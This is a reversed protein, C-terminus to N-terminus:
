PVAPRVPYLEDGIVPVVKRPHTRSDVGTLGCDGQRGWSLVVFEQAFTEVLM